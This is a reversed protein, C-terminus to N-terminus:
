LLVDTRLENQWGYFAGAPVLHQLHSFLHEEGLPPDNDPALKHRASLGLLRVEDEIILGVDRDGQNLCLVVAMRDPVTNLLPQLIGGCEIYGEDEGGVAVAEDKVIPGTM